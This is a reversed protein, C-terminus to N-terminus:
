NDCLLHSFFAENGRKSNRWDFFRTQVTFNFLLNERQMQLIAFTLRPRCCHSLAINCNMSLSIFQFSNWYTAYNGVICNWVAGISFKIIERELPFILREFRKITKNWCCCCCACCCAWCCCCCCGCCCCWCCCGCALEGPPPLIPFLLGDGPFEADGPVTVADLLDCVSGFGTSHLKHWRFNLFIGASLPWM